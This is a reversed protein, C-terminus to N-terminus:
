GIMYHLRHMKFDLDGLAFQAIKDASLTPLREAPCLKKGGSRYQSANISLSRILMGPYGSLFAVGEHRLDYLPHAVIIM